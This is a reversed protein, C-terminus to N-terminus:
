PWSSSSAAARSTSTWRARTSLSTVRTSGSGLSERLMSSAEPGAIRQHLHQGRAHRRRPREGHVPRVPGRHQPRGHSDCQILKLPHGNIGGANNLATVSAALSNGVEPLALNAGTMPLIQGVAIPSGTAPKTTSSSGRSASSSGCAAALLGVAALSCHGQAAKTVHEGRVSQDGIFRPRAESGAACRRRRRDRGSRGTDHDGGGGRRFFDGTPKPM